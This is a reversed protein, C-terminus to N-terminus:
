QANEKIGKGQRKMHVCRKHVCVGKSEVTSEDPHVNASPHQLLIISNGVNETGCKMIGGIGGGGRGGWLM